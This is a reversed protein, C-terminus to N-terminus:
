RTEKGKNYLDLIACANHWVIQKLKTCIEPTYKKIGLSQCTAFRMFDTQLSQSFVSHCLLVLEPSNKKLGTLHGMLMYWTERFRSTQGLLAQRFTHSDELEAYTFIRELLINKRTFGLEMFRDLITHLYQLAQARTLQPIQEPLVMDKMLEARIKGTLYEVTAIYLGYKDGFHYRVASLNAGARQVIQRVTTGSFGNQAFLRAATKILKVRTDRM